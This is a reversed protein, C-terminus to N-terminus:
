KRRQWPCRCTRLWTDPAQHLGKELLFGDPAVSLPQFTECDGPLTQKGVRGQSDRGEALKEKEIM